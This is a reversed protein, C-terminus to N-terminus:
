NFGGGNFGNEHKKLHEKLKIAMEASHNFGQAKGADHLDDYARHLQAHLSRIKDGHSFLDLDKPNRKGELITEMKSILNM